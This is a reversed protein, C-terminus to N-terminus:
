SFFNITSEISYHKQIYNKSELGIRNIETRDFYLKKLWFCVEGPTAAQCVPSVEGTLHEFIEPRGNAILPRGMAMIFAGAGIWQGGLQDFAVDCKPVIDNFLEDQSVEGLWTVFKSYGQREII